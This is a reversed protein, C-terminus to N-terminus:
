SCMVCCCKDKHGVRTSCIACSCNRSVVVGAGIYVQRHALHTSGGRRMFRWAYDYRSRLFAGILRPTDLSKGEINVRGKLLARRVYVQCGQTIVDDIEQQVQDRGLLAADWLERFGGTAKAYVVYKKRSHSRQVAFEYLAAKDSSRSFLGVNRVGPKGRSREQWVDRDDPTKDCMALKWPSWQLSSLAFKTCPVTERPVRIKSRGVKKDEEKSAQRSKTIRKATKKTSVDLSKMSKKAQRALGAVTSPEPKGTAKKSSKKAHKASGASTSPVPKKTAKKMAEAATKKAPAPRPNAKTKRGGKSAGKSMDIASIDFKKKSTGPGGRLV